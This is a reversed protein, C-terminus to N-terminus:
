SLLLVDYWLARGFSNRKSGTPSNSYHQCNRQELSVNTIEATAEPDPHARSASKMYIGKFTHHM